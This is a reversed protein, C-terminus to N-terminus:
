LGLVAKLTSLTPVFITIGTKFDFYPDNGLRNPNRAAFVWWLRPDGYLDFALLDPRNEYVTSITMSVDNPDKPIRRNQIVDLFKGDV